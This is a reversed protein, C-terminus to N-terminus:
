ELSASSSLGSGIPVDSVIVADFGCSISSLENLYQYITGKVYNSWTPSGKSLSPSIHFTSPEDPMSSSFIQCLNEASNNKAGVIVTGFPMSFPLVFGDNYDTHEGIFNARGPAFAAVEPNKGFKEKFINVASLLNENM